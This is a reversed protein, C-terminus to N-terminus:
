SITKEGWHGAVANRQRNQKGRRSRVGSERRRLSRGLNVYPSAHGASREGNDVQTVFSPCCTITRSCRFVFWSNIVASRLALALVSLSSSELSYSQRKWINNTTPTITNKTKPPRLSYGSVGSRRVWLQVHRRSSLFPWPRFTHGAAAPVWRLVELLLPVVGSAVVTQIADNSVSCMVRLIDVVQIRMVLWSVGGDVGETGAAATGDSFAVEENQRLKENKIFLSCLCEAPQGSGVLLASLSQGQLNDKPLSAQIMMNLLVRDVLASSLTFKSISFDYPVERYNAFHELLNSPQICYNGLCYFKTIGAM